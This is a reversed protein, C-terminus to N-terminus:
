LLLPSEFWQFVCVKTICWCLEYGALVAEGTPAALEVRLCDAEKEKKALKGFKSKVKKHLKPLVTPLCRRLIEPVSLREEELGIKECFVM